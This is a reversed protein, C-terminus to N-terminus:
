PTPRVFHDPGVGFVNTFYKIRDQWLALLNAATVGTGAATSAGLVNLLFLTASGGFNRPDRFLVYPRKPQVTPMSRLASLYRLKFAKM